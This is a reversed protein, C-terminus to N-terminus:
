SREFDLHGGPSLRNLRSGVSQVWHEGFLCIGDQVGIEGGAENLVGRLRPRAGEHTNWLFGAADTDCDVVLLQILDGLYRLNRNGADILHM